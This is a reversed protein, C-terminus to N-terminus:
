RLEAPTHPLRKADEIIRAAADWFAQALGDAKALGARLADISLPGLPIHDDARAVAVALGVTMRAYVPDPDKPAVSPSLDGGPVAVIPAGLSEAASRALARLAAVHRMTLGAYTDLTRGAVLLAATDDNFGLSSIDAVDM